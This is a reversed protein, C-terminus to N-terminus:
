VYVKGKSDMQCVLVFDKTNTDFWWVSGDDCLVMIKHEPNVTMVQIIKSAPKM